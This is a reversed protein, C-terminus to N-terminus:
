GCPDVVVKHFNFIKKRFIQKGFMVNITSQFGHGTDELKRAPKERYWILGFLLSISSYDKNPLVLSLRQTPHPWRVYVVISGVGIQHLDYWATVLFLSAACLELHSFSLESSYSLFDLQFDHSLKPSSKCCM